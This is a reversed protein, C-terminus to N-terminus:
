SFKNTLYFIGQIKPSFNIKEDREYIDLYRINKFYSLIKNSIEYVELHAINDFNIINELLRPNFNLDLSNINKYIEKYNVDKINDYYKSKLIKRVSNSTDYSMNIKKINPNNVRFLDKFYFLRLEFLKTFKNIVPYFKSSTIIEVNPFYKALFELDLDRGQAKLKNKKSKFLKTANKTIYLLKVNEMVVDLLYLSELRLHVINRYQEPRLIYLNGNLGYGKYIMSEGTEYHDYIFCEEEAEYYHMPLVQM